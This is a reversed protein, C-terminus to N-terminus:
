AADPASGHCTERTSYCTEGHQSLSKLVVQGAARWAALADDLLALDEAGIVYEVSGTCPDGTDRLEIGDRVTSVTHAVHAMADHLKRAADTM